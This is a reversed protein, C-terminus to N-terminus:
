LISICGIYHLPSFDKAEVGRHGKHSIEKTDETTLEKVV